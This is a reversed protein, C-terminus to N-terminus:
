GGGLPLAQDGVGTGARPEGGGEGPQSVVDGVALAQGGGGGVAGALEWGPIVGGGPEALQQGGARRASAPPAGRRDAAEPDLVPADVGVADEGQPDGLPRARATTWCRRIRTTLTRAVRSCDPPVAIGSRSPYM